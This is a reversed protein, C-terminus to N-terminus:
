ASDVEKQSTNQRKKSAESSLIKFHIRSSLASRSRQPLYRLCEGFSGRKPYRRRVISKRNKVVHFFGDVKLIETLNSIKGKKDLAM